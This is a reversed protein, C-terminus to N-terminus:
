EEDLAEKRLNRKQGYGPGLEKDYGKLNVVNSTEGAKVRSQPKRPPLPTVTARERRTEAPPPEPKERREESGREGSGPGDDEPRLTEVQMLDDLSCDLVQMLGLLLDSNLLDPMEKFIRGVHVTSIEFGIDTLLRHLEVKTFIRREAMLVPLRWVFRKTLRPKSKQKKTEKM